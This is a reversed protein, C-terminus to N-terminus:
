RMMRDRVRFEGRGGMEEYYFVFTGTSSREEIHLFSLLIFCGRRLITVTVTSPLSHQMVFDPSPSGPTGGQM